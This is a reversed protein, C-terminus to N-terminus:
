STSQRGDQAALWDTLTLLDPHRAKLAPIDAKFGAEGFWNFMRRVDYPLPRLLLRSVPFPLGASWGHRKFVTVIQERTLDDGAIEEAKGIFIDPNAFAHAVYNGIDTTAIMQLPKAKPVYSRLLTILVTRMSSKVFNDMFFVPRLITAAIGIQRIHEEIRWKSDFHPVRSRRDAGGVSAYVLHEIGSALASDAVAVGRRTELEGGGESGQVSFVGYAGAFAQRISAPKDLDAALLEIGSAALRRATDSNPNRSLASVQWRGDTALSRAVASGQQGTAGLVVIKKLSM